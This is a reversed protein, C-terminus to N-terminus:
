SLFICDCRPDIVVGAAFLSIPSRRSSAELFPVVGPADDGGTGPLYSMTKVRFPFRLGCADNNSARLCLKRGYNEGKGLILEQVSRQWWRQFGEIRLCWAPALGGSPSPPNPGTSSGCSRGLLAVASEAM